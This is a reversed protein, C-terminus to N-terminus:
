DRQSDSEQRELAQQWAARDPGLRLGTLSRLANWAYLKLRQNPDKLTDVLAQKVEPLPFRILHDVARFRRRTNSSNRLEEIWPAAEVHQRLRAIEQRRSPPLGKGELREVERLADRYRKRQLYHRALKLSALPHHGQRALWRLDQEAEALNGFSELVEVRALRAAVNDPDLKVALTLEELATTFDRRELLVRAQAVHAPAQDKFLALGRELLNSARDLEGEKLVAAGAEGLVLGWFEKRTLARIKRESSPQEGFALQVLEKDSYLREMYAPVLTYRHSGSRYRFGLLDGALVPELDLYPNLRDAFILTFIGIGTPSGRRLRYVSRPLLLELDAETRLTTELNLARHLFQRIADLNERPNDTYGVAVSLDILRHYIETRLARPDATPPRDGFERELALALDLSSSWPLEQDTIESLSAGRDRLSPIVVERKKPVLDEPAHRAPLYEREPAPAPPKAPVPRPVALEEQPPPGTKETPQAPGESDPKAGADPRNEVPPPSDKRDKRLKEIWASIDLQKSPGRRPQTTKSKAEPAPPAPRKPNQPAPKEPRSTPAQAPRSTDAPPTEPPLEFSFAGKKKAKNTAAPKEQGRAEGQFMLLLMQALALIVLARAVWRVM